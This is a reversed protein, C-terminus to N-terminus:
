VWIQTQFKQGFSQIIHSDQRPQLAGAPTENPRKNRVFHAKTNTGEGFFALAVRLLSNGLSESAQLNTVQSVLSASWYHLTKEM